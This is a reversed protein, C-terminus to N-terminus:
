SRAVKEAGRHVRRLLDEDELQKALRAARENISRGEDPAVMQSLMNLAMVRFRVFGGDGAYEAALRALRAGEQSDGLKWTCYALGNSRRFCAFPVTPDEELSEFLARAEELAPPQGPLPKTLHYARQGLLRARYCLRDEHTVGDAPLLAEVADLLLAAEARKGDDTAIRAGLLSVEMMAASGARQAGHHALSLHRRCADLDGMRHLVSALGVHIWAAVPSESTPPRDWLRLQELRLSTPLDAFRSHYQALWRAWDGIAPPVGFFRLMWRGYQGGPKHERGALRRLGKEITQLDMPTEVANAARHVLEDALATWSGHEAVFHDLYAAWSLGVPPSQGPDHGPM